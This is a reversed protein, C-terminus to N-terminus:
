DLRRLRAHQAAKNEQWWELLAPFSGGFKARKLSETAHRCAAAPTALVGRTTALYDCTWFVSELEAMDIAASAPAAAIPAPPDPVAACGILSVALVLASATSIDM